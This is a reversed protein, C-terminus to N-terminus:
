KVVPFITGLSISGLSLTDYVRGYEDYIVLYRSFGSSTPVLKYQYGWGKIPTSAINKTDTYEGSTIVDKVCLSIGLVTSAAGKLMGKTVLIDVTVTAAFGLVVAIAQGAQWKKINADDWM